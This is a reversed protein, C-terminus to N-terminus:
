DEDTPKKIILKKGKMINDANIRQTKVKKILQKLDFADKKEQIKFAIPNTRRLLEMDKQYLEGNTKLKPKLNKFLYKFGKREEIQFGKLLEKEKILASKMSILGKLHKINEKEYKKENESTNSIFSLDKEKLKVELTKNRKEKKENINEETEKTVETLEKKHKIKNKIINNEQNLTMSSIYNNEKNKSEDEYLFTGFEMTIKKGLNFDNNKNLNNSSDNKNKLIYKKSKDSKISEINFNRLNYKRQHKSSYLNEYNNINLTLKDLNSHITRSKFNNKKDLGHRSIASHIYEYRKRIKPNPTPLKKNNIITTDKNALLFKHFETLAKVIPVKPFVDMKFIYKEKITDLTKKILSIIKEVDVKICDFENLDSTLYSLGHQSNKNLIINKTSKESFFKELHKILENKIQEKLEYDPVSSFPPSLPRPFKSYGEFKKTIPHYEIPGNKGIIKKSTQPRNLLSKEKITKKNNLNFNSSSNFHHHRQSYSAIGTVNPLFKTKIRGFLDCLYHNNYNDSLILKGSETDYCINLILQDRKNYEYNKSYLNNDNEISNM